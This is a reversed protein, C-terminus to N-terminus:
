RWIWKENQSTKWCPSQPDNIRNQWGGGGGGGSTAVDEREGAGKMAKRKRPKKFFKGEVISCWNYGKVKIFTEASQHIVFSPFHHMQSSKHLSKHKQRTEYDVGLQQIVLSM